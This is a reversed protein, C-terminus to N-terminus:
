KGFKLKFATGLQIIPQFKGGVSQFGGHLQYIQDKKSKYEASLYAGNLFATTNGILGGGLYLQRTQPASLTITRIPLNLQYSPARTQIKNESVVDNNNFVGVRNGSSDKLTVSDKYSRSALFEKVLDNYQQTLKAIDASPQYQQPIIVPYSTGGSQIPIYPPIYVPPNQVYIIRDSLTDRTNNGIGCGKIGGFLMFIIFGVIALVSIWQSKVNEVFTM